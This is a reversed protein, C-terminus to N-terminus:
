VSEKVEEQKAKGLGKTYEEFANAVYTDDWDFFNAKFKAPEKGQIVQMIPVNKSREVTQAALFKQANPIAAKKEEISSCRGIWVFLTDM